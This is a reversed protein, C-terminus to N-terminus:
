GGMQAIRKAMWEVYARRTMGRRRRERDIFAAIGADLSLNARVPVGSPRILPISVLAYGAPVDVNELTSPSPAADGDEEAVAVWDRLAEEANIMAQDITAGAAVCGPLDPFVVGIASSGYEILAPYRM